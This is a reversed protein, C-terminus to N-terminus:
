VFASRYSRYSVGASTRGCNVSRMNKPTIQAYPVGYAEALASAIQNDSCYGLEVLVEGLLKRHGSGQQHSLADSIQEETVIGREQLVRGIQFKNEVTVGSM